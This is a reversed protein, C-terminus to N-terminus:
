YNYLTPEKNNAIQSVKIKFNESKKGHLLKILLFNIRM